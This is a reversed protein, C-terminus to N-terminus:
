CSVIHKFRVHVLVDTCFQGYGRIHIPLPDDIIKVERACPTM